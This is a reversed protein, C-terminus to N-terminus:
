SAKFDIGKNIRNKDISKLKIMLSSSSSTPELLLKRIEENETELFSEYKKFFLGNVTYKYLYIDMLLQAENLLKVELSIDKGVIIREISIHNFHPCSHAYLESAYAALQCLDATTIIDRKLEIVKYCVSDGDYAFSLIDIYKGSPLQFQPITNELLPLFNRESLKDKYEIIIEELTKESFDKAMGEKKHKNLNSEKNRKAM